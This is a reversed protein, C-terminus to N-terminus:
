QEEDRAITATALGRKHLGAQQRGQFRVVASATQRQAPRGDARPAEREGRELVPEGLDPNSRRRWRGIIIAEGAARCRPQPSLEGGACGHTLDVDQDEVLELLVEGLAVWALARHDKIEEAVEARERLHARV